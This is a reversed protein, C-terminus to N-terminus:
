CTFRCNKKIRLFVVVNVSLTFIGQFYQRETLADSNADMAKAIFLPNKKEALMEYFLLLRNDQIIGYRLGNTGWCFQKHKSYSSNWFDMHKFKVKSRNYKSPIHKSRNAPIKNKSQYEIFKDAQKCKKSAQIKIKTQEQNLENVKTKVFKNWKSNM